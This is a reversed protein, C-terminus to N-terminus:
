SVAQRLTELIVEERTEIYPQEERVPEPKGQRLLTLIDEASGAYSFLGREIYSRFSKLGNEHAIVPHAGFLLAEYAVSSWLTIVFDTRKLLGALPLSSSLAIEFNRVAMGQLRSQIEAKSEALMKPHFRILWRIDPPSHAIAQQIPAPLADEIPQLALLVHTKGAVFLTDLQVEEEPLGPKHIQRAMWPNGGVIAVQAPWSSRSWKNIREASQQGWSWFNDPMLAYGERGAKTWNAYMGHYDGQQGHQAEISRIGLARCALIMGMAAPQYYCVLFVAKPSVASLVRQFSRKLAGILRIEGLLQGRDLQLHPHARRIYDDLEDFGSITPASCTNMVRQLRARFFALAIEPRVSFPKGYPSITHSADLTLASIGATEAYDKLSDSFPSIAKGAIEVSREESAVFFVVEAKPYASKSRLLAYAALRLKEFKEATGAAARTSSAPGAAGGALQRWLMLRLLPWIDLGELCLREVAVNAEIDCLIATAKQYEM